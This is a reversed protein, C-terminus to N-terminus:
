PARVINPDVKTQLKYIKTKSGSVGIDFCRYTRVAPSVGDYFANSPIAAISYLSHCCRFMFLFNSQM